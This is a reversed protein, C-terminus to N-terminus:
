DANIPLTISATVGGQVNETITLAANGHYMANLRSKANKIGIGHGANDNNTSLGLGNDIVKLTCHEDNAKAEIVINGGKVSPEIGHKIANEVLPQLLYPPIMIHSAESSIDFKVNLRDGLRTQQIALYAELLEMESTISVHSSRHSTMSARLLTTLKDLMVKAQEPNADVLVSVNALTNFLFHPEIQSQLQKLESEVLAKEQEVKDRKTQELAQQLKMKQEQAHFFYFSVSTFIIGLFFIPKIGDWADFGPYKSVWFYANVTGLAVAVSLTIALSLTRQQALAPVFRELAWSMFVASYGYGLSIMLNEYYPASWISATIVAIFACFLTTFLLSRAWGNETMPITMM